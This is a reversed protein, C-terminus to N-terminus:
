VRGSVCAVCVERFATGSRADSLLFHLKISQLVRWRVSGLWALLAPRCSLLRQERPEALCWSRQLIRVAAPYPGHM